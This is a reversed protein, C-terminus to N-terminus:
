RNRRPDSTLLPVSVATYRTDPAPPLPFRSNPVYLRGRHVAGASPTDFRPDAIQRLLTARAGDPTLRFAAVGNDHPTAYLTTGDRALGLVSPLAVGGLDVKRAVGSVPDVRFVSGGDAALNMVLLAQGDPTRTIGSATPVGATTGQVWDGTLRLTVVEDVEPLRGDRRLPLGFLAPTFGDTFWATDPTLTVAYVATDAAGVPYSRLLAGTRGDHIKLLRGWGGATFVRDRRDVALGVAMYRPDFTGPNTGPHITTGTGTALDIRHIAGGLLSGFYALPREGIAIGSPHFGDPLELTTPWRGDCSRTAAGATSTTGLAAAGGLAAAMGLLRRRTMTHM